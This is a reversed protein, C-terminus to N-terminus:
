LIIHRNKLCATKNNHSNERFCVSLFINKRSFATSLHSEITFIFANREATFSATSDENQCRRRQPSCSNRLRVRTVRCNALLEFARLKEVPIFTQLTHTPFFAEFSGNPFIFICPHSTNICAHTTILFANQPERWGARSNQHHRLYCKKNNNDVVSTKGRSKHATSKQSRCPM